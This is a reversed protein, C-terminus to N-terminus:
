FRGEDQDKMFDMGIKGMFLPIMSIVFFAVAVFITTKKHRLCARLVRAYWAEVAEFIREVFGWITHKKKEQEQKEAAVKEAITMYVTKGKLIKSSMMPTLSIAITTSTCVVITVIWGLEKFLIGAIGSLMTLPVFVVVIVLTTAIVSTWVENTAYISAERPSSGRDIHKSINELVVIAEDVVMGIAVSLSALSIINLSSDAGLLYIFATLLSIPITIGIILTTRWTGLFFWVVLVVFLLAYM